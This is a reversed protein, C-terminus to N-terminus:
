VQTLLDCNLTLAPLTQESTRGFLMSTKWPHALIAVDGWGSAKSPACSM